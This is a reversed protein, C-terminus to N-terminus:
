PVNPLQNRHKSTFAPIKYKISPLQKHIETVKSLSLQLTASFELQPNEKLWSESFFLHQDRHSYRILYFIFFSKAQDGVGDTKNTKAEGTDNKRSQWGTLKHQHKSWQLQAHAACWKETYEGADMVMQICPDLDAHTRTNTQTQCTEQKEWQRMLSVPWWVSCCPGMWM